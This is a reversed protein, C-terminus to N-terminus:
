TPLSNVFIQRVLIEDDDGGGLVGASLGDRAGPVVLGFGGVYRQDIGVV